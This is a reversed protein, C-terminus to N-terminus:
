STSSPSKVILLAGLGAYLLGFPVALVNLFFAALKECGCVSNKFAMGKEKAGKRDETIPM